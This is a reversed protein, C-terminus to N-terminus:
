DVPPLSGGNRNNRNRARLVGIVSVAFYGAFALTAAVRYYIGINTNMIVLVCVVPKAIDLLVKGVKWARQSFESTM